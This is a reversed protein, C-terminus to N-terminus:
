EERGLLKAIALQTEPSRDRLNPDTKDKNLHKREIINQWEYWNFKTLILYTRVKYYASLKLRLEEM